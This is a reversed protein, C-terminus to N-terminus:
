EQLIKLVGNERSTILVRMMMMLYIDQIVTIMIITWDVKLLGVKNLVPLRIFLARNRQYM